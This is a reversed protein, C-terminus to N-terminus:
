TAQIHSCSILLYVSYTDIGSGLFARTYDVSLKMLPDVWANSLYKAIQYYGEDMLGNGSSVPYDTDNLQALLAEDVEERFLRALFSYTESRSECLAALDEATMVGEDNTDTGLAANETTEATEVITEAADDKRTAITM